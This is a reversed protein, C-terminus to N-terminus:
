IKYGLISECKSNEYFARFSKATAEQKSTAQKDTTAIVNILSRLAAEHQAISLFVMERRETDSLDNFIENKNIIELGDEVVHKFVESRQNTENSNSLLTAVDRATSISRMLSIACNAKNTFGMITLFDPKMAYHQYDLWLDKESPASTPAATLTNSIAATLIIALFKINQATKM